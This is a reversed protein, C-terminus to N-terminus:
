TRPTVSAKPPKSCSQNHYEAGNWATCDYGQTFNSSTLVAQKTFHVLQRLFAVECLMHHAHVAETCTTSSSSSSLHTVSCILFPARETGLVEAISLRLRFPLYQQNGRYLMLALNEDLIQVCGVCM